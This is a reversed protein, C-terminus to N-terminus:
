NGVAEAEIVLTGPGPRMGSAHYEKVGPWTLIVLKGALERNGSVEYVVQRVLPAPVWEFFTLPVGFEDWSRTLGKERVLLDEAPRIFFVTDTTARYNSSIVSRLANYERVAPHLFQFRFNYWANVAFAASLVLCVARQMWITRFMPIMTTMFFLFVAMDLALLTRNSSYSERVILSPLYILLLLALIVVIQGTQKQWAWGKLRERYGMLTIWLLFMSILIGPRSKENVLFTFHFGTTLPRAFFFKLKSFPDLHLATRSGAEANLSAISLKFACFYLASIILYGVVGALVTRGKRPEALLRMLFPLLFCGFGNQYTFLSFLGLMMAGAILAYFGGRRPSESVVARYFLYGSALGATNALFLELCSAWGISICFVPTCILYLVAFPVIFAPLEEMVVIKKLMAYWAPICILWGGFSFLRILTVDKVKDANGFLVQFLQDTIYRGQEIFMHFGSGKKYFWLQVAEDTYLYTATFIPYYILAAVGLLAALILLDKRNM